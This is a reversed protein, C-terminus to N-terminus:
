KTVEKIYAILDDRETKTPVGSFPMRNGKIYGQPDALYADITSEDWVIASRRMAVSYRFEEVSAAKRGFIKALHPGVDNKGAELSHCSVCKEYQVKGKGSDAAAADASSMIAATVAMGFLSLSLLTKM